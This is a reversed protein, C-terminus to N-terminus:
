SELMEEAKQKQKEVIRAMVEKAEEDLTRQLMFEVPTEKSEAVPPAAAEPAAGAAKRTGVAMGVDFGRGQVSKGVLALAPGVKIHRSGHARGAAGCQERSSM